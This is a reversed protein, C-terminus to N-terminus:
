SNISNLSILPGYRRARPPSAFAFDESNLSLNPNYAPDTDLMAGWRDRMIKIEAGFRAQKAPTDEAGRSASEHHYFEAFPSWLNRYGAARVKLCFDVDNFAIALDDEDLGGVQLYTSKRVVLCAGTVASYNQVLRARNFIGESGRPFTKFAHGAVGGVGLVIGAHQISDHPYYLMAGVCGIEPRLAQAAMEELWDPTIVELDDNLLALIEGAAHNAAFNNIASYNFPQAYPLVQVGTAAIEHLYALTAADDSDNDIVIIEYHPYSTKARLSDLCRRLHRVGNRTPIIISVLPPPTPLSYIVRWHGGIVQSLTAVQGTRTLHEQLARQAAAGHYNKQDLTLATSGPIARWHYLLKAIHVVQDATTQAIVRLALDWDQSGEFGPRFGGVARVLTARYVALHTLYNQGLFLDPLFAPKFYPAFRRGQEDIKDEDSYLLDADSQRSLALAVEALAHPALEDDHDLLAIFEGGALALASNSAHSIHGNKERFVIKIRADSLAAEELLPRIHAATSADDAICLEWEQYVQARVSEIAQRLWIEPTNYVPLLVSILPRVPLEALRETLKRLAAPTLDEYLHLWQEYSEVAPPLDLTPTFATIETQFLLSWSGAGDSIELHMPQCGSTLTVEIQFGSFESSGLGHATAVDARPLQTFGLIVREGIRARIKAPAEGDPLLCWGRITLAGAPLVWFFPEDIIFEAAARTLPLPPSPALATTIPQSSLKTLLRRLARLPATIQWSFSVQMRRVKSELAAINNQLVLRDNTSTAIIRTLEAQFNYSSRHQKATLAEFRSIRQDSAAKLAAFGKRSELLEGTLTAAHQDALSIRQDSAAKLAAFGKRSELLEGTLTAAHQDTLSVQTQLSQIQKELQSQLRRALGRAGSKEAHEILLRLEDITNLLEARQPTAAPLLLKIERRLTDPILTTETMSASTLRTWATRSTSTAIMEYFLALAGANTALEFQQRAFVAANQGLRRALQHDTFIRQCLDAIEDSNGSQLLLADIGDRLGHAVNTAPLIVPRGVAFFEPLKSPLRYDNFPGPQGPQVLADALALLLPLEAKPLFGLDLTFARWDFSYKDTFAAPHFGTRVLRTPTGRQNLLRVAVVLETIETENAFTTSGTFVIIKEEDKLGLKPRLDARSPQPRYLSFDVGPPLLQVPVGRPSFKRLPEVIITIGDALRLFNKYRLPHPLAEDAQAALEDDALKRLKTWPLGTFSTLLYEENDELHIILRTQPQLRQHALVFKRVGERPTWAHLLDAPRGNPFLAPQNLVEAYTAASFRAPGAMPLTEKARPVAVICAHGQACLWNAFGGIHNLSNTTFDGYNAFLINM